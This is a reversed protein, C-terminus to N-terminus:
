ASSGRVGELSRDNDIFWQGHADFRHRLWGTSGAATLLLAALAAIGINMMM